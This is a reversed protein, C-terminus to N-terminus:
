HSPALAGANSDLSLLEEQLGKFRQLLDTQGSDQTSPAALREQIEAREAELRTRKLFRLAGDLLARPSDAGEAHHVIRGILQRAPDEGLATMVTGVNIQLDLRAHLELIAELVRRIDELECQEVAAAAMPVLSPDLLLAGAIEGWATRVRPHVRVTRGAQEAEESGPAAGDLPGQPAGGEDADRRAREADRVAARAEPTMALQGQLTEVSMGLREALRRVLDQRHVPAKVRLILALTRDVARSLAGGHLDEVGECAFEFWDSAGKLAALFPALGEAMLVDCPDQGGPPQVVDLEYDEPLLGNLARFAAERGAADGDFVM